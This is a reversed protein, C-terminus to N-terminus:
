KTRSPRVAATLCTACSKRASSGRNRRKAVKDGIGGTSHKDLIPGGLEGTPWRLVTGSHTMARTLAACETRTMGRFYVAMAFAAIQADSVTGDVIGGVLAAIESESLTAGDRKRRIIEAPPGSM